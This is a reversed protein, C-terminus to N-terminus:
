RSSIVVKRSRAWAIFGAMAIVLLNFGIQSAEGRAIHFISATLMLAIIGYAAYITLAPRIRLTSPLLIGLGGLLDFLGTIRTLTPNDATWPWMLALEDIPKLWKMAAAWLLTVALLLQCIWVIINVVKSTSLNKEM